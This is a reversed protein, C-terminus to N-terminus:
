LRGHEHIPRHIAQGECGFLGLSQALSARWAL